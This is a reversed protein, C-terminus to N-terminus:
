CLLSSNSHGRAFGAQRNECIMELPTLTATMQNNQCMFTNTLFKNGPRDVCQLPLPCCHWDQLQQIKTFRNPIAFGQGSTGSRFWWMWRCSQASNRIQMRSLNHNWMSSVSNKQGQIYMRLTVIEMTLLTKLLKNARPMSESVSSPDQGATPCLMVSKTLFTMQHKKRVM